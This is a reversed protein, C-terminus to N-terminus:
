CDTTKRQPGMASVGATKLFTHPEHTRSDVSERTRANLSERRGWHMELSFRSKQLRGFLLRPNVYTSEIEGSSKPINAHPLSHVSHGQRKRKYFLFGPFWETELKVRLHDEPHEGRKPPFIARRTLLGLAVEGGIVTYLLM